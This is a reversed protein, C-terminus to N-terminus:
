QLRAAKAGGGCAAVPLTLVIDMADRDGGVPYEDPLYFLVRDGARFKPACNHGPQELRLSEGIKTNKFAEDVRVWVSQEGWYMEGGAVAGGVNGNQIKTVSGVFVLPSEAWAGKASPWGACSCAWSGATSLLMALLAKRM